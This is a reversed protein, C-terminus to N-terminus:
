LNPYFEHKILNVYSNLNNKTLGYEKLPSEIPCGIINILHGFASTDLTTPQDGLFYRKSGLTASLANIDQKSLAFIEQEQLRGTGHSYIQRQIKRRTRNAVIDRIVPPLGSFIAKKNIKWNEDTYQWRSYLAACFLHEELLRQMAISLALEADNLEKDLDRYSSKLYTIPSQIIFRSDGIIGGNDEIYPLKGKPAGIPLVPVIEYDINAM